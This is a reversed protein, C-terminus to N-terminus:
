CTRSGADALGRAIHFIGARAGVDAGVTPCDLIPLRLQTALWKALVVRQQNGGSLTSVAHEPRGIRIALESVWRRVLEAKRTPSVLGLRRPLRDLVSIATDDAISRPQIPGLLFRNESLCAVGRAIADRARMGFLVRALESRGAGILGIRGLAGCRRIM